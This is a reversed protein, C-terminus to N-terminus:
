ILNDIKDLTLKDLNSELDLIVSKYRRQVTVRHLGFQRGLVSWNFRMARAWVLRRNEIKPIKALLDIAMEWCAIQKSNARLKLHKKQYFGLDKADYTMELIDFMKPSGPKKINPMMRETRGATDFIDIIKPTLLKL